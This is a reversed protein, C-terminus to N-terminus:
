PHYGHVHRSSKENTMQGSKELATTGCSAATLVWGCILAAVLARKLCTFFHKM